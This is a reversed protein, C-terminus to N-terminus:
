NEARVCRSPRPALSPLPNSLAAGHANTACTTSVCGAPTSALKRKESTPLGTPPVVGTVIVQVLVCSNTPNVASAERFTTPVYVKRTM